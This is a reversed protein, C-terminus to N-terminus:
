AIDAPLTFLGDDGPLFPIVRVVADTNLPGYIHPFLDSRGVEPQHTRPDIPAEIRLESTLRATDIVLLLLDERGSFYKNASREVQAAMSCHIFGENVLSPSAYSGTGQSVEWDTRAAIHYIVNL